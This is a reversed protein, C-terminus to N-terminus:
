GPDNFKENRFTCTVTSGAAVVVGSTPGETGCHHSGLTWGPVANPEVEIVNYTGPVVSLISVEETGVGDAIVIQADRRPLPGEGDDIYFDFTGGPLDCGDCGGVNFGTNKIIKVTGTTPNKTNSFYCHVNGGSTVVFGSTPGGDNCYPSSDSGEDLTWGALPVESISYTGANVPVVISEQNAGGMDISSDSASLGTITFHFIAHTEDSANKTITITGIAPPVGVAPTANSAIFYLADKAREIGQAIKVFIKGPCPGNPDFQNAENLIGQLFNILAQLWPPHFVHQISNLVAVFNTLKRINNQLETIQDATLHCQAGDGDGGGVLVFTDQGLLTVTLVQTITPRCTKLTAASGAKACDFTPFTPDEQAMDDNTVGAYSLVPSAHPGAVEFHLPIANKPSGSPSVIDVAATGTFIGTGTFDVKDGIADCLSDVPGPNCNSGAPGASFEGGTRLSWVYGGSGDAAIIAANDVNVASNFANTMTITLVHPENTNAEPTTTQPSTTWAVPVFRVGVLSFADRGVKDTIRLRATLGSVTQMKWKRGNTGSYTTTNNTRLAYCATYGFETVPDCTSLAGLISPVATGGNQAATLPAVVAGDIAFTISPAAESPLPAMLVGVFLLSCMLGIWRLSRM